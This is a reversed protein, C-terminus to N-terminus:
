AIAKLLQVGLVLWKKATHFIFIQKLQHLWTALTLVNKFVLRSGYKARKSITTLAHFFFYIYIYIYIYIKLVCFYITETM